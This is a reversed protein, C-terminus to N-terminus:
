HYSQSPFIVLLLAFIASRRALLASHRETYDNGGFAVLETCNGAGAREIRHPKRACALGEPDGQLEAFKCPGYYSRGLVPVVRNFM